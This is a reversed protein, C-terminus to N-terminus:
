MDRNYKDCHIFSMLDPNGAINMGKKTATAIGPTCNERNTVKKITEPKIRGIRGSSPKGKSIANIANDEPVKITDCAFSGYKKVTISKALMVGAVSATGCFDCGYRCFFVGM